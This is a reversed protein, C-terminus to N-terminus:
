VPEEVLAIVSNAAMQITTGVREAGTEPSATDVHRVWCFGEPLTPLTLATADGSNFALYIAEERQAYKPTGSAMRFEACLVTMHGNTWDARTMEQGDARWWFLDTVGDVKRPISHLFRKQRLIPHAKRFSILWRTFALFAEDAAEWDIWTTDNDQAYANNNGNQSNGLEDGALIM